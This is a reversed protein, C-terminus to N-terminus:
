MPTKFGMARVACWGATAEFVAFFGALICVISVIWSPASGGSLVWRGILAIGFLILVLGWILRVARGKRGINCQLTM